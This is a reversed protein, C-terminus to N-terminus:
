HIIPIWGGSVCHAEEWPECLRTPPMPLVVPVWVRARSYPVHTNWSVINALSGIDTEWFRELLLFNSIFAYVIGSFASPVCLHNKRLLGCRIVQFHFCSSGYLMCCLCISCYLAFINWLGLLDKRVWLITDEETGAWRQAFVAVCFFCIKVSLSLCLLNAAHM